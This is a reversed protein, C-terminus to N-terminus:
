YITEQTEILSTALADALLNKAFALIDKRQQTTSREPLFFMADFTMDYAKTPAPTIGNYTSANVVEMVPMVVKLRVKQLRSTKTPTVTNVTVSPYGLTIGTSRDVFKAESGILTLPSFIHAVPTSAGDNITVAAFTPM